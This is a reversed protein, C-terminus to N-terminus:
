PHPPSFAATLQAQIAALTSNTQQTLQQNAQNQSITPAPGLAGTTNTPSINNLQNQLQQIQVGLATAQASAGPTFAAQNLQDKQQQLNQILSQINTRSNQMSQQVYQQEQAGSSFQNTYGTVSGSVAGSNPDGEAGVDAQQQMAATKKQEDATQQQILADDAKDNAIITQQAAIQNNLEATHQQLAILKEKDAASGTQQYIALQQELDVQSKKEQSQLQLLTYQDKSIANIGTLSGTQYAFMALQDQVSLSISKQYTDQTKALEVRDKEAAAAYVQQQADSLSADSALKAWNSIQQKLDSIQQETTETTKRIDFEQQAQQVNQKSVELQLAADHADQQATQQKKQSQLQLQALELQELQVKNKLYAESTPDQQLMFAKLDSQQQLNADIKDQLSMEDNALQEDLQKLKANLAAKQAPEEAIYKARAAAIAALNEEAANNMDTYQKQAEPGIGQLDLIFSGVAEGAEPFISIMDGAVSKIGGGTGSVADHLDLWAQKQDSIPEGMARANEAATLEADAVDKIGKVVEMVAVAGIMGNGIERVAMSAERGFAKMMVSAQDTAEQLQSTDGGFYATISNDM